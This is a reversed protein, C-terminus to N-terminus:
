SADRILQGCRWVVGGDSWFATKSEDGGIKVEIGDIEVVREWKKKESNRKGGVLHSRLFSSM